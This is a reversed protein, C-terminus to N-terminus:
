TKERLQAPPTAEVLRRTLEYLNSERIAGIRKLLRKGINQKAVLQPDPDIEDWLLCEQALFHALVIPGVASQAFLVHYMQDIDTETLQKGLYIM